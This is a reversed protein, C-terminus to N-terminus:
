KKKKELNKKWIIDQLRYCRWFARKNCSHSYEIVTLKGFIKGVLNERIKYM